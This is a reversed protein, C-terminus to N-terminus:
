PVMGSSGHFDHLLRFITNLPHTIPPDGKTPPLTSESPAGGLNSPELASSPQIAVNGQIAPPRPLSPLLYRITMTTWTSPPPQVSTRLRLIRFKQKAVMTWIATPRFGHLFDNLCPNWTCDSTPPTPPPFFPLNSLLLMKYRPTFCSAPAYRM